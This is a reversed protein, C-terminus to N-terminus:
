YGQTTNSNMPNQIEQDQLLKPQKGKNLKMTFTRSIGFEKILFLVKDSQIRLLYGNKVPDNERLAYANAKDNIDEFLAIRAAKDYLIGVMQLNEVSPLPGEEDQTLPLFPDRGLVNYAIAPQQPKESAIAVTAAGQLPFSNKTTDGLSAKEAATPSSAAISHEISPQKALPTIEPPSKLAEQAKEIKEQRLREAEQLKEEQKAAAIKAAEIKRWIAQPAKASDMALSGLVWGQTDGAEVHIWAGKKGLQTAIAGLPFRRIVASVPAASPRSRLATNNKVIVIKTVRPPPTALQPPNQSTAQVSFTGSASMDNKSDSLAKNEINKLDVPFEQPTIFDYSLTTGNKASWLSLCRKADRVSYIVLRDSFTQILPKASGERNVNISAALWMAGGHIVEKLEITKVLWDKESTFAASPLGNKANVFLITIQEPVSKVIMETPADFKFIITEVQERHLITIDELFSSATSQPPGSPPATVRNNEAIIKAEGGGAIANKKTENQASWAFDNIPASTLLIVWRNDKQKFRINKDLPILTKVLIEIGGSKKTEKAVIQRLPAGRPFSSFQYDDLGYIVNSCTISLTSVISKESPKEVITVDFAADAGLTLALGRGSGIVELRSLVPTAAFLDASITFLAMVGILRLCAARPFHGRRFGHHPKLDRM